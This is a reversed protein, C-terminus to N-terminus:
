LINTATKHQMKSSQDQMKRVRDNVRLLFSRSKLSMETEAVTNSDMDDDDVIFRDTHETFLGPPQENVPKGTKAELVEDSNWEQSSWNKKDVKWESYSPSYADEVPRGTRQHQGNRSSLPFQSEYRTKGPSESVTSALVDPTRESCRSVLNTM